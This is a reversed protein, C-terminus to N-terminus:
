VAYEKVAQRYSRSIPIQSGDALEVVSQGLKVRRIKQGNILFSRHCRLFIEPLRKALNEMTDYFSIERTDTNLYIKKERAEFYNIQGYDIVWKGERNDIVFAEKKGRPAMERAFEGFAERLVAAVQQEDLPRLLLSGALIGPRMYTVPSMSQDAILAIYAQRNQRRLKLVRDIGDDGSIDMCAMNVLPATDLFAEAEAAGRFCHYAWQEETMLGAYERAYSQLWKQEAASKSFIMMEMM